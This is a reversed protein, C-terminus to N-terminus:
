VRRNAQVIAQDGIDVRMCVFDFQARPGLTETRLEPREPCMHEVTWIRRGSVRGVIQVNAKRDSMRSTTHGGADAEIEGDM